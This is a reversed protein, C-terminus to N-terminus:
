PKTREGLPHCALTGSVQPSESQASKAVEQRLADIEVLRADALAQLRRVEARLWPVREAEVCSPCPARNHECIYRDTM